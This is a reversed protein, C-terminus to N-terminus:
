PLYDAYEPLTGDLVPLFFEETEGAASLTAELNAGPIAAVNDILTETGDAGLYATEGAAVPVSVPAAGPTELEFVVDEDSNNALAGLLNGPANEEAAIVVLNLGRVQADAFDVRTGDSPAYPLQTTVPACAGLLLAGVAAGAVALTTRAPRASRAM